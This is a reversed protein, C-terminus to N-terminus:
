AVRAGVDNRTLALHCAGGHSQLAAVVELAYRAEQHVLRSGPRWLHQLIRRQLRRTQMAVGLQALRRMRRVRARTAASVLAFCSQSVLATELHQCIALRRRLCARRAGRLHRQVAADVVARRLTAFCNFTQLYTPRVCRCM